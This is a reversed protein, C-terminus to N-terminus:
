DTYQDALESSFFDREVVLGGAVEPDVRLVLTSRSASETPESFDLDAFIGTQVSTIGRLAEVVGERTLDGAACAAELGEAYVSAAAYGYNVLLTPDDGPFAEEYAEVIRQAEASDDAFPAASSVVYLNRELAGAAPTDLLAPDFGPVNSIIPVDLGLSTGVTAISATQRPGGSVLIATVDAGVLQTVQATLDTASPEVQLGLVELGEADAFHRSGKLANEGFDGPFHVHGITDGEDIYGEDKLHQLGNIVDIPYVTGPTFLARPGLFDSSWGAIFTPVTSSEIQGSLANIMPSGLIQPFGLVTPELEAYQSVSTQVDHGHDRVVLNIQRGCIGGDANVEDFLIQNGQTLTQGLAAYVNSLDSLVGLTITDATVGAGTSVGDDGPGSPGSDSRTACASATLGVALAVAAIKLPTRANM